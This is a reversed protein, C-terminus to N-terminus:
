PYGSSRMRFSKAVLALSQPSVQARLNNIRFSCDDCFLFAESPDSACKQVFILM